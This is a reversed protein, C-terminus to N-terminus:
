AQDPTEKLKVYRDRVEWFSPQKVDRRVCRVCIYTPLTFNLDLIVNLFMDLMILLM